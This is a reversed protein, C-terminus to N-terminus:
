DAKDTQRNTQRYKQKDAGRDTQIDAQGDIQIIACIEGIIHALAVMNPM